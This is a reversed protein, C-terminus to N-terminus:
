EKCLENKRVEIDIKIHAPQMNNITNLLATKNCIIIPNQNIVALLEKRSILDTNISQKIM